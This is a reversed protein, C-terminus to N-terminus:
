KVLGQEKEYKHLELLNFEKVRIVKGKMRDIQELRLAYHPWAETDFPVIRFFFKAKSTRKDKLDITIYYGRQEGRQKSDIKNDSTRYLSQLVMNQSISYTFHLRRSLGNADLDVTQLPIAGTKDENPIFWRGHNEEVLYSNEDTWTITPYVGLSNVDNLSGEKPENTVDIYACVSPPGNNWAKIEFGFDVLKIIPKGSSM